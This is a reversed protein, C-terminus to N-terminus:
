DTLNKIATMTSQQWRSADDNDDGHDHDCSPHCILLLKMKCLLKVHDQILYNGHVQILGFAQIDRTPSYYM